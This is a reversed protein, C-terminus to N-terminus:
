KGGKKELKKLYRKVSAEGIEDKCYECIPDPKSYIKMWYNLRKYSIARECRKCHIHPILEPEKEESFTGDEIPIYGMEIKEKKKWFKWNM